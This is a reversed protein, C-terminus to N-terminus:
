RINSPFPLTLRNKEAGRREKGHRRWRGEESLREKIGSGYGNGARKPSPM